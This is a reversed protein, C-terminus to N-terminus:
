IRKQKENIKVVTGGPELEKFLQTQFKYIKIDKRLWSDMPLGALLCGQCLFDVEDWGNEVPIQPLLISKYFYFEIFLGDLGINLMKPYDAVKDVNILRLPTLIHLDFTVNNLLHANLKNLAKARIAANIASDVVIKIVPKLPVPYGVCVIEEVFNEKEYFQNLTIFAGMKKKLKEPIRRPIEVEYNGNCIEAVVDRAIKILLRGETLELM